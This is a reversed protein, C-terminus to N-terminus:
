ARRLAKMAQHNIEVRMAEDQPVVIERGFQRIDMTAQENTIPVAQILHKDLKVTATTQGIKQRQVPNLRTRWEYEGAVTFRGANCTLTDNLAGKFREGPVMTFFQPRWALSKLAQVGLGTCRATKVTTHATALRQHPQPRNYTVM